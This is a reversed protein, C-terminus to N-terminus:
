SEVASSKGGECNVQQAKLAFWFGCSYIIVRVKLQAWRRTARGTLSGLITIMEANESKKM